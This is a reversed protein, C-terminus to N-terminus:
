LLTDLRKLDTNLLIEIRRDNYETCQIIFCTVDVWVYNEIISLARKSKPLHRRSVGEEEARGCGAGLLFVDKANKAVQRPLCPM